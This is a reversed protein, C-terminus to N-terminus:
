EAEEADAEETRTERSVLRYTYDAEPSFRPLNGLIENEAHNLALWNMEWFGFFIRKLANSASEDIDLAAARCVGAPDVPIWHYGPNYFEARCHLLSSLDSKDSPGLAPSFRSPAIFFGFVRRAPIGVARALLVFLGAIDAAGGGHTEIQINGSGDSDALAADFVSKEVVWDYLARAKALPDVIRGVISRALKEAAENVPLLTTAALNKRLIDDRDPAFTRRSIDLRRDAVAVSAFLRLYSSSRVNEWDCVLMEMGDDPLRELSARANTEWSLREIRQWPQVPTDQHLPLPLTLKTERAAKAELNLALDFYRWNAPMAAARVPPLRSASSGEHPALVSNASPKKQRAALLSLAGAVLFFRRNM